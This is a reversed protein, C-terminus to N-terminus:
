LNLMVRVGYEIKKMEEESVFAVKKQIREKAVSRLQEIM